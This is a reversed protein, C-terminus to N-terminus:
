VFIQSVQAHNNCNVESDKKEIKKNKKKIVDLLKLSRLERVLFQIQSMAIFAWFRVVLCGLFEWSWFIKLSFEPRGESTSRNLYNKLNTSKLKSFWSKERRTFLVLIFNSAIVMSSKTLRSFWRKACKCNLEIVWGHGVRQSGMFQLMGPEGTWWWSGSSAWVWTWRHVSSDDILFIM